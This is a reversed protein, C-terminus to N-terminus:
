PLLYDLFYTIIGSSISSAISMPLVLITGPMKSPSISELWQRIDDETWEDAPVILVVFVERRRESPLAQLHELPRPPSANDPVFGSGLIIFEPEEYELTKFFAEPTDVPLPYGGQSRIMEQIAEALSPPVAILVSREAIPNEESGNWLRGM